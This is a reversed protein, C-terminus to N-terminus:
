YMQHTVFISYIYVMTGYLSKVHTMSEYTHGTTSGADTRPRCPPPLAKPVTPSSPSNVGTSSVTYFNIIHVVLINNCRM